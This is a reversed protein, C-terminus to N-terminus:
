EDAAAAALRAVAGALVQAGLVLDQEATDEAVDHSRGAISPVFVMGAPVHRRLVMADHGAGSVLRLTAAGADRAAAEITDTIAPDMEVGALEVSPRVEHPRGSAETMEVAIARLAQDLRALVDPSVDRFEVLAEARSPVVNGAGPEVALHGINWVTEREALREFTDLLRAAFRIAAAGADQRMAMPTTGAHDARGAFSVAYRRMNVIGTVIGIPTESAELRPGQEIHLEAFARHRAPDLRALPRGDYGADALAQRLPRGGPDRAGDLEADSVEGCFATSGLTGRFTGEEDAFSVVDVGVDDPAGSERIARAAELAAIVGLAGDLWGGRPVTDSHSGTLVTRGVGPWRGYVNGIGDIDAQLGADRFRECLWGRAEVDAPSFARRDVGRGVAGIRRLAQLDALFRRRDIEVNM